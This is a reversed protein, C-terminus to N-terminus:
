NLRIKLQHLFSEAERRGYPYLEKDIYIKINDIAARIQDLRSYLVAKDLNLRYDEPAILAMRHVIVLAKEYNEADIHRYKLNNQFRLLIDRNTCSRYYDNSLEAYEGMVNKLILRLDKAELIQCSQFPDILIREGDKELRMMFHGPFNIGDANWEMSRCLSIGLICLSIPLGKRRKVVHFLNINDLNDYDQDDGYFGHDETLVKKLAEAQVFVSDSNRKACLDDYVDKLEGQLANMFQDFEVQDVSPTNLYSFAVAANLIDIDSNNLPGISCLYDEAVTENDFIM